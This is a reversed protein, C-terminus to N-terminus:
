IKKAPNARSKLTKSCVLWKQPFKKETAKTKFGHQSEYVTSPQSHGRKSMKTILNLIQVYEALYTEHESKSKNVSCVSWPSSLVAPRTCWAPTSGLFFVSLPLPLDAMMHQTLQHLFALSFLCNPVQM